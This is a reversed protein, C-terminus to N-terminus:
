PGLFALLKAHIQAFFFSKGPTAVFVLPYLLSQGRLNPLPLFNYQTIHSYTSSILVYITGFAM